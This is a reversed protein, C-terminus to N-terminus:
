FVQVAPDQREQFVIVNVVITSAMMTVHEPVTNSILQLMGMNVREVKQEEGVPNAAFEGPVGRIATNIAFM